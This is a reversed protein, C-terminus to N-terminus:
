SSRHHRRLTRRRRRSATLQEYMADAIPVRGYGAAKYWLGGMADILRNGNIDEVWAGEGKVFIQLNGRWDEVQQAHMFLHDGAISQLEEMREGSITAETMTAM